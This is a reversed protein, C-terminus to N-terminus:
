SEFGKRALVGRRYYHKVETMETVLDARDLWEQPCYRGTLILEVNDPKTKLLPLVDEATLLKFYTAVCVEDLIVIDYMGSDMAERARQLARRAITKDEESPPERRLVFADNGYQEIEIHQKLPELGKLEGYPFDKMLMIILSKLGHGAARVAQGIAATTKGKGHGTYIQIFRKSESNM